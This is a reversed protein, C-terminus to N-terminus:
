NNCNEPSIFKKKLIPDKLDLAIWKGKELNAVYLTGKDLSDSSDSM